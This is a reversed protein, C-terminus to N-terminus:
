RTQLIYIFYRFELSIGDGISQANEPFPTIGDVVKNQINEAEYLKRLASLRTSISGLNESIMHMRMAFTSISQQLLHLSALSVPISAPKRVVQLTFIIQFSILNSFAPCTLLRVQPLEQLPVKLLHFPKFPPYRISAIYAPWFENARSGLRDALSCYETPV